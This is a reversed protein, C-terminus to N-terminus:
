KIVMQKKRQGFAKTMTIKEIFPVMLNGLLIAYTVGETFDGSIRFVAMLVGILAGYLYQGIRTIPSTVYDTAMFWVGLLLGGSCIHNALFVGDFGREGFFGLMLVFAALCSIPIRLQIIGLALLIIAGGMIALASTEGICGGVTGVLSMFPDVEEGAQLLALPTAGSYADTTFDRMYKSFAILLLVRASLAPNLLNRGLGGFAIKVIGIAFIGGVLGLWLPANVPLTLALLLGTVAASYDGATLPRDTFAEITFETLVCTVVCVLIHLLARAGFHVVGFVAAPLLALIVLQMIRATSLSGRIHPATTMTRTHEM